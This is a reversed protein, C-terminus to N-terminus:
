LSTRVFTRSVHTFFFCCVCCQMSVPLLPPQIGAPFSGSFSPSPTCGWWPLGLHPGPPFSFLLYCDRPCVCGCCCSGREVGFQMPAVDVYAFRVGVLWRQVCPPVNAPASYSRISRQTSSPRAYCLARGCHGACLLPLTDTHASVARAHLVVTPPPRLVPGHLLWARFVPMAGWGFWITVM